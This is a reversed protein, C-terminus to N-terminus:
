TSDTPQMMLEWQCLSLRNGHFDARWINWQGRKRLRAKNPLATDRRGSISRQGKGRRGMLCLDFADQKGQCQSCPPLLKDPLQM